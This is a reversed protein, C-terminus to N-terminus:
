PQRTFSATELFATFAIQDLLPADPTGTCNPQIMDFTLRDGDITYRFTVCVEWANGKDTGFELTSGDAARYHQPSVLADNDYIRASLVTAALPLGDFVISYRSTTRDASPQIACDFFGDQGYGQAVLDARAEALQDATYGAAEITAVQQACTMEPALWTGVLPNAVPTPTSSPSASRTPTQTPQDGPGPVDPLLNYGLIAVLLVAAAATATLFFRNMQPSRRSPWWLRRQQTTDVEDLALRLVREANEHADERLWSLVTRTRSDHETTM